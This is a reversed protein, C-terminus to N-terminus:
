HGTTTSSTSTKSGPSPPPPPLEYVFCCGPCEMVISTSKNEEEETYDEVILAEGCRCDYVHLTQGTEDDQAIEVASWNLAVRKSDRAKQTLSAQLLDQDYAHRADTDRLTEWAEQIRLFSNNTTSTMTMTMTTTTTTTRTKDPHLKRALASFAVKIVEYSDEPSVGLTEYYTSEPTSSAKTM